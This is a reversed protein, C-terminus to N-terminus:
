WNRSRLGLSLPQARNGRSKNCRGHSAEFNGPDEALEPHSSLPFRHDLSFADNHDSPLEYDIAMGCLWCARQELHSLERFARRLEKFRRTSRGSHKPM